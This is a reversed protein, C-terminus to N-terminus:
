LQRQCTYDYDISRTRRIIKSISRNSMETRIMTAYKRVDKSEFGPLKTALFSLILFLLTNGILTICLWAGPPLYSQSNLVQERAIETLYPTYCPILSIQYEAFGDAPLNFIRAIVEIIIVAVRVGQEFIIVKGYVQEEADLLEVYDQLREPSVNDDFSKVKYQNKQDESPLKLTRNLRKERFHQLKLQLSDIFKDKEREDKFIPMKPEEFDELRKRIKRPPSAIKTMRIIKPQNSRADQSSLIKRNVSTNTVGASKGMQQQRNRTDDRMSERITKKPVSRQQQKPTLKQNNQRLRERFPLKDRAVQPRVIESQLERLTNLGTTVLNKGVQRIDTSTEGFDQFTFNSVDEILNTDIEHEMKLGDYTINIM